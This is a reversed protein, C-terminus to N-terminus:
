AAADAADAADAPIIWPLELLCFALRLQPDTTTLFPLYPNVTIIVHTQNKSGRLTIGNSSDIRVAVYDGIDASALLTSSSSSSSSSSMKSDDALIKMAVDDFVM